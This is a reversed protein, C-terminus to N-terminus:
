ALIHDRCLLSLKKLTSLPEDQKTKKDGAAVVAGDYTNIGRAQVLDGPQSHPASACRLPLHPTLLSRPAANRPAPSFPHNSPCPQM